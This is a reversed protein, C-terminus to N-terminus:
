YELESLDLEFGDLVNEGSLKQSFGENLEIEKIDKRYVWVKKEAPQILWALKCGNELWLNMKEQQQALTDGPSIVEIIFEPCAPAFGNQQEETLSEWKQKSMWSVDPSMVSGDPLRFGAQSEFCFGYKNKKNWLVLQFFLEGQFESVRSGTPSMVILNGEKDREMKLHNNSASLALLLADDVHIPVTIPYVYPM